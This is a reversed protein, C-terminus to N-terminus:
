GKYNLWYSPWLDTFLVVSKGFLVEKLFARAIRANKNGSRFGLPVRKEYLFADSL